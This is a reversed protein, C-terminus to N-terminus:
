YGEENYALPIMLEDVDNCQTHSPEKFRVDRLNMKFESKLLANYM